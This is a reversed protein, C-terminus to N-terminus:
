DSLDLPSKDFPLYYYQADEMCVQVTSNATEKSIINDETIIELKGKVGFNLILNGNQFYYKVLGIEDLGDDYCILKWFEKNILVYSKGNIKVNKYLAFPSYYKVQTADPQYEKLHNNRRNKRIREM